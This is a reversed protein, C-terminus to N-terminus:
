ANELRVTTRKRDGKSWEQDAIYGPSQHYTIIEKVKEGTEKLFITIKTAM